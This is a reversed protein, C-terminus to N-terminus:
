DDTEEIMSYRRENKFPRFEKGGGTFFKSFFELYQLRGSHVFAGLTNVALNFAHGGVLILAMALYGTYYPMGKVMAAIDNVAIAIASTALGLALLRAYSLVDGFYGVVDYFRVLGTLGKKLISKQNRGGTLFIAGALVIAGYTCFRIVSGDVRGGLIGAYGLPALLILFVMWFLNDFVADAVLGARINATMKVGMGFIMHVIGMLFSINLMKMPEKLPDILVFEQLFPPLSGAQVGFIGGAVLGVVATALGGMFLVRMLLSAGGKPKFKILIFGSIAALSFGYGADTLCMAFFLVFFPALLPTPDVEGYVPRGYLTTVFEYPKAIRSNDLSIPVDEGEEPERFLIEIEDFKKELKKKLKKADLARVWGEMVFSSETRDFNQEVTELAVQERYHDSLIRLRDGESVLERAEAGAEEIDKECGATEETRAAIIQSPTGELREFAPRFGGGEKLLEAIGQTGEIPVIVAMFIRGGERNCEVFESLPFDAASTEVLTELGKEPLIWLQATFKETTMAELPMDISRWPELSSILERNKEIRDASARIRGRLRDCRSWIEGVDIERSIADIEERTVTLPVKGLNEFFSPKDSFEDLFEISSLAQELLLEMDRIRSVDEEDAVQRSTIEVVGAERLFRKLEGKISSHALLQLKLMRSVAM